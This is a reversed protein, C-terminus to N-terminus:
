RAARLNQHRYRPEWLLKNILRAPAPFAALVRKREAPNVDDLLWPVYIAAGKYRQRRRM